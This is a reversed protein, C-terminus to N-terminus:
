PEKCGNMSSMWATSPSPPEPLPGTSVPRDLPETQVNLAHARFSLRDRTLTLRGGIAEAGRWLNARAGVLVGSDDTM